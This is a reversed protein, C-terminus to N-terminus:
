LAAEIGTGQQYFGRGLSVAECPGIRGMGQEKAMRYGQKRLITVYGAAFARQIAQRDRETPDLVRRAPVRAIQSKLNPSQSRRAGLRGGSRGFLRGQGHGGKGLRTDFGTQHALPYPFGARSRCAIVFRMRRPEYEFADASLGASFLKGSAQLIPTSGYKRRKREAYDPSLEAWAGHAGSGGQTNFINIWMNTIPGAAYPWLPTYDDLVIRRAAISFGEINRARFTFQLM